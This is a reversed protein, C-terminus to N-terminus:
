RDFDLRSRSARYGKRRLILVLGCVLLLLGGGACSEPWYPQDMRFAALLAVVGAAILILPLAEYLSRPLRM